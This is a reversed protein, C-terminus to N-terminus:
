GVFRPSTVVGTWVGMVPLSQCALASETEGNWHYRYLKMEGSKSAHYGFGYQPDPVIM